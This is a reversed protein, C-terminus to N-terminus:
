GRLEPPANTSSRPLTTPTTDALNFARPNELPRRINKTCQTSGHMRLQVAISPM